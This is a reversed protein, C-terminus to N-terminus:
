EGRELDAAAFRDIRWDTRGALRYLRSCTRAWTEGLVVVPSTHIHPGPLAPHDRCNGSLMPAMSVGLQVGELAPAALLATRSPGGLEEIERLDALLRAYLGIAEAIRQEARPDTMVIM